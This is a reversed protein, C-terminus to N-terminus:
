RLDPERSRSSALESGLPAVTVLAGKELWDAYRGLAERVLPALGGPTVDVARVQIVSPSTAPRAALIAGFDLDNTFICVRAFERVGPDGSRTRPSRRPFVLSRSRM